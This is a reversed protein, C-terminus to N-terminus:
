LILEYIRNDSTKFGVLGNPGIYLANRSVSDRRTFYVDSFERLQLVFTDQYVCRASLCRLSDTYVLNMRVPVTGTEEEFSLNLEDQARTPLNSNYRTNLDFTFRLYPTDCGIVLKRRQLEVYDLDPLSGGSALDQTSKEYFEEFSIQRLEITDGDNSRFQRAASYDPIYDLTFNSANLRLYNDKSCAMLVVLLIVTYRALRLM